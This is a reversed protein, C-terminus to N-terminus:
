WSSARGVAGAFAAIGSAPSVSSGGGGGVAVGWKSGLYSENQQIQALTLASTYFIVEGIYGKWGYNGNGSAGVNLHTGSPAPWATTVTVTASASGNVRLLAQNGVTNTQASVVTAAGATYATQLSPSIGQVDWKGSNTVGLFRDTDEPTIIEGFSGDSGNPVVVACITNVANVTATTGSAMANTTAGDWSAAPKTGIANTVYTIADGHGSQQTLTYGNGSRDNWTSLTAGNTYSFGTNTADYWAFMGSVVSAPINLSGPGIALNTLM